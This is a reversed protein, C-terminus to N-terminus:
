TPRTVLRRLRELKRPRGSSNPWRLRSAKSTSRSVASAPSRRRSRSPSATPTTCSSRLIAPCRHAAALSGLQEDLISQGKRLTERFRVEERDIVDRVFDHNAALDPYDPGMIEVVAGVMGGMVPTEVGLIYAHRVARRLIRRLVYGRAENSPFVGDSVLM